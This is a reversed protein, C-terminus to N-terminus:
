GLYLVGTRNIHSSLKIQIESLIEKRLRFIPKEDRIETLPVSSFYRFDLVLFYLNNDYEFMPSTHLFEAKQKILPKKKDLMGFEINENGIHMSIKPPCLFGLITRSVTMKRQLFDCLPTVELKVFKVKEALNKQFDNDFRTKSPKDKKDGYLEEYRQKLTEWNISDRIFREKELSGNEELIYLNGPYLGGSTATDLLLRSNIKGIIEEDM